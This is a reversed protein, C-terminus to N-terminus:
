AAQGANRKRYEERLARAVRYAGQGDILQQGQQALRQRKAQDHILVNLQRAIQQESCQHFWGLSVDGHERDLARAIGLQNEALVLVLHPVGMCALEWCTSGGASVAVDAWAMLQPMHPTSRELRLEFSARSAEECLSQYHPNGAGVVIRAQMRSDDIQLLARIVRQTVNDPDSGGLTILVKRAVQPAEQPPQRREIFEKRLLAYSSGLLLQTHSSRQPYLTGAIALNQNLLVDVTYTDQHSYDDIMGLLWADRKVTRRFDNDFQYGDLFLCGGENAVIERTALADQRSGVTASVRTVRFSEASLRAALGDLLEASIFHVGGGTAQWAQALALCRMIHGTGIIRDADARILLSPPKENSM